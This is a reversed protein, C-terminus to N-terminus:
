IAQASKIPSDRTSRVEHTAKVPWDHKYPKSLHDNIKLAINTGLLSRSLDGPTESSPTAALGTFLLADLFALDELKVTHGYGVKKRMNKIPNTIM